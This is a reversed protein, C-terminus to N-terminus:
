GQWRRRFRWEFGGAVFTVEFGEGSGVTGVPDSTTGNGRGRSRSVVVGLRHDREGTGSETKRDPPQGVRGLRQTGSSTASHRAGGSLEVALLDLLEDRAVRCARSDVLQALLELNVPSRHTPDQMPVIHRHPSTAERRALDVRRYPEILLAARQRPDPPPHPDIRRRHEGPQSLSPHLRAIRLVPAVPTVSVSHPVDSGLFGRRRAVSTRM